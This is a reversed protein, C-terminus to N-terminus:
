RRKVRRFENTILAVGIAVGVLGGVYAAGTAFVFEGPNMKMAFRHMASTSFFIVGLSSLLLFVGGVVELLRRM